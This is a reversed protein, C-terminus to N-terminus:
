LNLKLKSLLLHEVHTVQCYFVSVYSKFLGCTDYLREQVSYWRLLPSRMLPYCQGLTLREHKYTPISCAHALIQRSYTYRRDTSVQPKSQGLRHWRRRHTTQEVAEESKTSPVVQRAITPAPSPGLQLPCGIVPVAYPVWGGTMTPNLM